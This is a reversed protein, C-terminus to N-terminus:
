NKKANIHFAVASLPPVQLTVQGASNVTVTSSCSTKNDDQIVNCYTGAPMGTSLTQTFWTSGDRNMAIFALGNGRGFAIQNNNGVQWNNIDSTGATNRWAVMNAIPTIRHECVWNRGDHCNAGNNIGVSPPGQDTNSFYYSSMVRTNGYPWALMFVNAFTYMDGNKYTLQARGNRQTDHSSCCCTSCDFFFLFPVGFSFIMQIHTACMFMLRLFM